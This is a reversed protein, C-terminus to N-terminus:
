TNKGEANEAKVREEEELDLVVEPVQFGEEKEPAGPLVILCASMNDKSNKILCTDLLRECIDSPAIGARLHDRVFQIAEENEMVDWIGDCALLIFEDGEARELTTIDSAATVKQEAPSLDPRDKYMFDGLARSVALNGCVRGVQIYGGAAQVRQYETADSPKHDKTGFFCRGDRCVVARSDGCNAIIYHTPTVFTAICTSGSKDALNALKPETQLFHKDQDLLGQYLAQGLTDASKDGSKLPAGNLIIPLLQVASLTSVTKGGHGDFVAFFSTDPLGNVATECTHADEMEIRWGQMASCAFKLNNGAGHITEKDTVPKDLFSGM